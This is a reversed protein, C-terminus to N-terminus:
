RAAGPGGTPAPNAKDGKRAPKRDDMNRAGSASAIHAGGPHLTAADADKADKPKMKAPTGTDPKSSQKPPASAPAAEPSHTNLDDLEAKAEKHGPTYRLATQLAQRAVDTKGQRRSAAGLHYYLATLLEGKAPSNMIEQPVDAIAQNLAGVAADYNGKKYLAWGYSDEIQCAMTSDDGPSKKLLQLAQSTLQVAEDLQLDNDALLYGYANLWKPSSPDLEAARQAALIAQEQPKTKEVMSYCVSLMGYLDARAPRPADKCPLLSKNLYEIGLDPHQTTLCIQAIALYAAPDQTRGKLDRDFLARARQPDGSAFAANYPELHKRELFEPLQNLLPTCLLLLLWLM